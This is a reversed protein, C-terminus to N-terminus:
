YPFNGIIAFPESFQKQLDLLLFDGEMIQGHHGPYKKKLFDISDRHIEILTTRYEPHQFLFQTLIGMGPGIELVHKCGNHNLSEVIRKATNEDKLFHQGLSKKARVREM